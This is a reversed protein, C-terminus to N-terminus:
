KYKYSVIPPAGGYYSNFGCKCPPHKKYINYPYGKNPTYFNTYPYAFHYFYPNFYPNYSMPGLGQGLRMSSYPGSFSRCKIVTESQFFSEGLYKQGYMFHPTKYSMPYPIFSPRTDTDPYVYPYYNPKLRYHSDDDPGTLAAILNSFIDFTAAVPAFKVLFIM